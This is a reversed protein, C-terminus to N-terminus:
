NKTPEQSQGLLKNTKNAMVSILTGLFVVIVYAPLILFFSLSGFFLTFGGVIPVSIHEHIMRNAEFWVSNERAIFGALAFYPGLVMGAVGVLILTAGPFAGFPYYGYGYASAGQLFYSLVILGLSGGIVLYSTVVAKTNLTPV